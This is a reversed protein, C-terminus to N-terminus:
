VLLLEDGLCHGPNAGDVDSLLCWHEGDISAWEKGSGLFEVIGLWVSCM